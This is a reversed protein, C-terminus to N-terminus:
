HGPRLSGLLAAIESEAKKDGAARAAALGRQCLDRAQELRGLEVATQAAMLYTPVYGPHAQQLAVLAELAEVCRGLGRLELARAYYPFPDAPCTAVIRELRELRELKRRLAEDSM